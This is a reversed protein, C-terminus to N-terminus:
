KEEQQSAGRRRAPLRLPVESPAGPGAEFWKTPVQQGYREAASFDNSLLSQLALLMGTPDRRFHDVITNGTSVYSGEEATWQQGQAEQLEEEGGHISNVEAQLEEGGTMIFNDFSNNNNANMLEAVEARRFLAARSPSVIYREAESLAPLVFGSASELQRSGEEEEEGRRGFKLDVALALPLLEGCCLSLMKSVFRM